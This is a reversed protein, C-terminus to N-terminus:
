SNASSLAERAIAGEDRHEETRVIEPPLATIEELASRMTKNAMVIRRMAAGCYKGAGLGAFLGYFFFITPKHIKM